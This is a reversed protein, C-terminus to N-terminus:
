SLVPKYVSFTAMVIKKIRALAANAATLFKSHMSDTGAWRPTESQVLMVTLVILEAGSM